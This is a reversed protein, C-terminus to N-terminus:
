LTRWNPIIQLSFPNNITLDNEGEKLYLGEYDGTVKTNQITGDEKYAIMLDTDITLNGEVNATMINGNVWLKCEGTGTVIYIPKSLSYPNLITPTTQEIPITGSEFYAYPECLFSATFEGAEKVTRYVTDISVNKCKYFNGNEFPFKLRGSGKLWKKIQSFRYGWDTPRSIFNMEVDITIDNYTSDSIILSGDRGPIKISEISRQPVPMDPRYAIKIGLMSATRGNFELDYM